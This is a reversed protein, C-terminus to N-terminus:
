LKYLVAQQIEQCVQNTSTWKQEPWIQLGQISFSWKPTGTTWSLHINGLKQYKSTEPKYPEVNERYFEWINPVQELMHHLVTSTGEHQDPSNGTTTPSVQATVQLTNKSGCYVCINNSKCTKTPAWFMHTAHSRSRCRNCFNDQQCIKGLIMTEVM